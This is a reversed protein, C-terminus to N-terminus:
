KVVIKKGNSIYIGKKLGYSNGNTVRRGNLDFLPSDSAFEPSMICTTEENADDNGFAFKLTSIFERAGQNQEDYYIQIYAKNPTMIKSTSYYWGLVGQKTSLIFMKQTNDGTTESLSINSITEGNLSNYGRLVNTDLSPIGEANQKLPLLRNNTTTYTEDCELVVATNAPVIGGTVETFTVTHNDANYSDSVNAPLYYAKVDDLLQYPFYTYMTTYYKGGKTYKEKTYAGFSGEECDSDLLYVTWKAEDGLQDLTKMVAWGNGEDCLYSRMPIANGDVNCTYNTYIIVYGDDTRQMTLPDSNSRLSNYNIGCAVLDMDNTVGMDGPTGNRQFVTMPNGKAEELSIMKLSNEFIFGDQIDHYTTNNFVINRRHPESSNGNNNGYLTLFKETSKNKLRSYIIEPAESFHAYYTGQTEQTVTFTESPKLNPIYDTGTGNDNKTWGLFKIGNVVDPNATITVPSNLSNNNPTISVNGRGRSEPAVQVKVLGNQEKFVATYNKTTRNGQTGNFNFSPTNTITTNGEQWHDFLYGSNEQAYLYVTATPEFILWFGGGLWWPLEVGYGNGEGSVNNVPNNWNPSISQKSIYVKGGASPSASVSASYYYLRSEAM